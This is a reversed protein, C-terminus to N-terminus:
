IKPNVTYETCGIFQKAKPLIEGTKKCGWEGNGPIPTAFECTRCNRDPAKGLNFCVPKHDCFKCTWCGPNTGAKRPPEDMLVLNEALDIYADAHEENLMVLEMYVQDNNKNVAAYLTVAYGMKRMYIQMQTYHQPKAERVGAGNFVGQRGEYLADLYAAWGKGALKEFSKDNHTKFELLVVQGLNVDPLGYAMGDGSGGFHGGGGSIRYQKGNADQNATQCGIMQLMALFRAEELHGRNFLRLQQGGFKARTVWHWGYWVARACEGGILSAGMHSRFPEEDARYADDMHPLIRGSWLRFSAGQDAEMTKHIALLTKEAIYIAM